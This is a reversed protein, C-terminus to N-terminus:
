PILIYYYRDFFVGVLILILGIKILLFALETYQKFNDREFSTKELQNIETFISALADHNKARYYKAATKDAIEQLLEEDLGGGYKQYRTQGMFEVPIITEDTGVGITYIKVDMERALDTATGPTIAGANNEGDTVLIVIKSAADSKKLRNLAVSIGMGIATGEQNVSSTDVEELSKRIINHDLTLPIRTYATGGFIILALRDQIREQIFNDITERAVELRSPEFDVSNMSGSVDLVLAIDIGERDLRVNRELLQPRALAICLLILGSIILYKGLKHKSTEKLGAAKLLSVSPFKVNSKNKKYIFLYIIVPILLLFYWHLFRFMKM